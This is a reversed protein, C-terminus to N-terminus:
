AWKNYLFAVIETQNESLKENIFVKELNIFFLQIRTGLFTANFNRSM